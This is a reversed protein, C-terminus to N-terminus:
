NAEVQQRIEDFSNYITDDTAREVLTDYATINGDLAEKMLWANEASELFSKSLHADQSLNLLDSYTNELDQLM